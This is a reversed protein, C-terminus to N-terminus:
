EYGLEQLYGKLRSEVGQRESELNELSKLVKPIDVPKEDEFIDVYRTVSLNYDNEKIKELPVVSAYKDADKFERYIQAIKEIDEERLRNMNKLKEFGNGGYIFLVNDKRKGKKAKNLITICGPAGTNYFLKEPLAIVCEVLDEKLVKERIQGEM